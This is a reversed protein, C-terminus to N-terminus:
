HTDSTTAQEKAKRNSAPPTASRSLATEGWWDSGPAQVISPVKGPPADGWGYRFFLGFQCGIAICDISGAADWGLPLTISTWTRGADVTEAFAGDPKAWIGVRGVTWVNGPQCGSTVSGDINMEVGCFLEKQSGPLSRKVPWVRLSTASTSWASKDWTDNSQLFWDPLDKLQLPAYVDATSVARSDWSNILAFFVLLSGELTPIVLPPPGKQELAHYLVMAKTLDPSAQVTKWNGDPSRVCAAHDRDGECSGLFAIAGDASAMADSTIVNISDRLNNREDEEVFTHELHPNGQVDIHVAVDLDSSGDRCRFIPHTPVMPWCRTLGPIATPSQNGGQYVLLRGDHASPAVHGHVTYLRAMELDPEDSGEPENDCTADLHEGNSKYFLTYPGFTDVHEGLDEAPGGFRSSRKVREGDVFLTTRGDKAVCLWSANVTSDVVQVGEADIVSLHGNQGVFGFRGDSLRYMGRVLLESRPLEALYLLKSPSVSPEVVPSQATAFQSLPKHSGCGLATVILATISRVVKSETRFRMGTSTVRRDCIDVCETSDTEVGSLRM